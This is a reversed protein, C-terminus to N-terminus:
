RDRRWRWLLVRGDITGMALRDGRASLSLAMSPVGDVQLSQAALSTGNRADVVGIEGDLLAYAVCAPDSPISVLATAVSAIPRRWMVRGREDLGDIFVSGGGPEHRRAVRVWGGAPLRCTQSEMFHGGAAEDWPFVGRIEGQMDLSCLEKRKHSSAPTGRLFYLM